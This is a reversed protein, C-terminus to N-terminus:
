DKKTKEAPVDKTQGLSQLQQTLDEAINVRKLFLLAFCTDVVGPFADSWSGDRNQATLLIDRGWAYWDKGGITSLGYVVAMRELSWLFYLDGWSVAQVLQGKFDDGTPYIKDSQDDLRKEEKQLAKLEAILAAETEKTIREGKSVRVARRLLAYYPEALEQSQQILELWVQPHKKVAEAQRLQRAREAADLATPKGIRRGLLALAQTVAKDKVARSRETALGTVGRGVALALLGACTMSDKRWRVVKEARIAALADEDNPRYSWSGDENQLLRFRREAMSLSREVPLGHKRAVWLALIAFQTVSNDDLRDGDKLTPMDRPFSLPQGARYLAAPPAGAVRGRPPPAQLLSLLRESQAGSLPPCSYGWGGYRTQASILQLALVRILDRDEAHGLRDLFWIAVSVDYPNSLRGVAARVQAAARRLLADGAPVGNELLTLGTLALVGIRYGRTGDLQLNDALCARLYAVGRDIARNVAPSERPSEPRPPRSPAKRAPPNATPAAPTQSPTLLRSTVADDEEEGSPVSPRPSAKKGEAAMIPPAVPRHRYNHILLLVGALLLGIVPISLLPLWSRWPISAPADDSSSTAASNTRRGFRAHCSPCLWQSPMGSALQLSSQCHPCRKAVPPM